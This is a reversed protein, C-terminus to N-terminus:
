TFDKNLFIGDSHKKKWPYQKKQASLYDNVIEV